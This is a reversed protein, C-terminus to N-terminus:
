TGESNMVVQFDSKPDEMLRSKGVPDRVHSEEMMREYTQSKPDERQKESTLKYEQFMKPDGTMHHTAGSDAIWDGFSSNGQDSTTILAQAQALHAGDSTSAADQTSLRSIYAQLEKLQDASLKSTAVNISTNQSPEPVSPAWRTSPPRGLVLRKEPHLDWCFDVSHGLKNCHSCRRSSRQGTSDELTWTAWQPDNKAPAPKEGTIYQLRGRNTIGIELTASWSLYNDKNLRISTVHVPVNEGKLNSGTGQVDAVAPLVTDAM